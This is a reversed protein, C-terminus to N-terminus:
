FCSLCFILVVFFNIQALLDFRTLLCSFFFLLVLCSWIKSSYQHNLQKMLCKNSIPKYKSFYRSIYRCLGVNHIVSITHFFDTSILYTWIEHWAYAKFPLSTILERKYSPKKKHFSDHIWYMYLFMLFYSYSFSSHLKYNFTVLCFDQYSSM